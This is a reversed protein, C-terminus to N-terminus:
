LFHSQRARTSDPTRNGSEVMKASAKLSGAFVNQCTPCIVPVIAIDRLKLGSMARGFPSNPAIAPLCDKQCNFNRGSAVAFSRRRTATGRASAM